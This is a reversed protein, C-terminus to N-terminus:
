SNALEVRRDLEEQMEDLFAQPNCAEYAKMYDAWASDFDKATIVKPLWEHKCEGMETWAAGGETMTSMLNSYSYMPYWFGMEDHESQLFDDYSDYGYARFCDQLPKALGDFFEGIHCIGRDDPATIHGLFGCPGKDVDVGGDDGPSM